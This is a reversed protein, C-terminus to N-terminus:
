DDPLLTWMVKMERPTNFYVQCFTGDDLLFAMTLMGSTFSGYPTGLKSVVEYVDMGKSISEAAARTPHITFKDFCRLDEITKYDDSAKAVIADGFLNNYFIYSGIGFTQDLPIIRDFKEISMGTYAGNFRGRTTYWISFILLACLACCLLIVYKKRKM